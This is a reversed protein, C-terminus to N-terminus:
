PSKGGLVNKIVALAADLNAKGFGRIAGAAIAEKQADAHNSVLMVPVAALESDAKMERILELGSAGDWDFRRNVLVLNFPQAKLAAVAQKATHMPEVEVGEFHSQLFTSISYHDAGCQGVSLIRKPNM